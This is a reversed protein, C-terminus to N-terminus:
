SVDEKTSFTEEQERGEKEQKEVEEKIKRMHKMYHELLYAAAVVEISDM